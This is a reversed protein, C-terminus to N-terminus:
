PPTVVLRETAVAEATARSRAHGTVAELFREREIAIARLPTLAIVSATRPVARLLAIEGLHAGPGHESLLRGDQMVAVRGEALLYFRDGPMGQRILLEGERLELWSLEALIRETTPASLPAFIPSGRLLALAEPDPLPADRDIVALRRWSLVILAPLLLGAVVLAGRIGVVGVLVGSLLSGAALAFMSFGELVGFVRALIAEPAVRQLVTRGAVGNVTSAGGVAALSVAAVGISPVAAVIAIFLGQLAGSSAFAPTLRRRGVLTLTAVVGIIGGLGVSAALFGAWAEGADFLEIAVAAYLIDLAGLVVMAGSLLVVLWLLRRDRRILGFGQFTEALIERPGASTDSRIVGDDIQTRAVLFANALSVLAFATFVDGPESRGLLLGAALPGLFLGAAEALGGVANAATLDAPAHTIAPLLVAQAPRTLTVAVAATTAALITVAAPADAYLAYATLAFTAAQGVYGGLLVRDHRFRDGAYAAFPAILGAPVLMVVAVVGALAAGGLGYAYVIIAVWTANEGMNYGLYALQVRALTRDRAVRFVVRLADKM